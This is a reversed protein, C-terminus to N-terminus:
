FRGKKKLKKDWYDLTQNMEKEIKNRRIVEKNLFDKNLKVINKMYHLKVCFKGFDKPIITKGNFM